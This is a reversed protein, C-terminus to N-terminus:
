IGEKRVRIFFLEWEEASFDGLDEIQNLMSQIHQENCKKGDITEGTLGELIVEPWTQCFNWAVQGSPNGHPQERYDFDLMEQYIDRVAETQSM